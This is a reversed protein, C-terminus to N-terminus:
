RGVEILSNEPYKKCFDSDVETIKVTVDPRDEYIVDNCHYVIKINTFNIEKDMLFIFKQTPDSFYSKNSHGSAVLKLNNFEVERYNEDYKIEKKFWLFGQTYGEIKRLKPKENYNCIYLPNKHSPSCVAFLDYSFFISYLFIFKSM